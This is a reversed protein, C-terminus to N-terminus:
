KSSQEIFREFWMELMTLHWTHTVNYDGSEFRNLCENIYDHVFIDRQKLSSLKKKVLSSLPGQMWQKLPLAFGKKKMSLCEPAIYKAALKRLIYKHIRGRLKYRSPIKFAAEVLNHDLFPFRAEISHAMTFQDVRHVHHNGIYNMIDMYSMAEIADEFHLSKKVYLDHLYDITNFKKLERVAFLRQLDFDSTKVFLATHLRDPTSAQLLQFMREIRNNKRLISIHEIFKFLKGIHKLWTYYPAFKYYSYGAFLEDGGLGNLVVTVKNNKVIKSIVFNAPLSYYPEEYGDIWKDLYQLSEEPRVTEVIHQMHYLTATARAQKVENFESANSEYALTFAKIGPQIKSAMASIITSDIGGSMFTGVPVDAVLRYKIATSLREELLSIADAESMNHDQTGVPIFWYREKEIRGTAANVKIWHAQELAVVNKFATKPRPAIGFAMALYLGEMDPTPQYLGSAIITKINSAFIFKNNLITYYFPKIGIRDRACFLEKKENDWIAFAFMGNFLKLCSNGWLVYSQLVVETDSSSRLVVGEKKLSEAIELFNYVEGNFVIWFRLDSSAMPQHGFPSLDVISLRRHGLAVQSKQTVASRIHQTPFGPFDPTGGDSPLQSDDGYFSSISGDATFLVFGEDDPGRSTMQKTMKLLPVGLTTESNYFNIIGAIGCM